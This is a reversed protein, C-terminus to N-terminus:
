AYNLRVHVSSLARATRGHRSHNVQMLALSVSRPYDFGRLKPGFRHAVNEYNNQKHRSERQHAEVHPGAVADGDRLMM